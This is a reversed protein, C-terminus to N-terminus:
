SRTNKKSHWQWFTKSPTFAVEVAGAEVLLDIIEYVHAQDIGVVGFSIPQAPMPM